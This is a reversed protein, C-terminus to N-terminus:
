HNEFYTFFAFHTVTYATHQWQIVFPLTISAHVHALYRQFSTFSHITTAEPFISSLIPSQKVKYRKTNTNSNEM